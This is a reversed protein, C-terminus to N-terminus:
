CGMPPSKLCPAWVATVPKRGGGSTTGYFNGDSGEVLGAFPSAGNTYAVFSHLNTFVVAAHAGFAPLVLAAAWLLPMLLASLPRRGTAPGAM